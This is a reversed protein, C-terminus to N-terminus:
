DGVEVFLKMTPHIGCFVTYRGPKAFAIRVTEGPEQAGSDFTMKPDFVRVNHTRTDNNRVFVVAGKAVRISGPLFQKERQAVVRTAVAPAVRRTPAPKVRPATDAPGPATLTELFALLDGREEASLAARKLDKSLTSRAVIGSDYHALVDALTALSGDHMYPARHGVDRLGPTKFAHDAARLDLVAGRGRDAGPLGIDHFAHDTFAWGSHCAACNAKGAFLRFGRQATPSIAGEDGAIWRDFSTIPSVLTRVYTALAQALTRATVAKSGPFAAAFAAKYDADRELWAVLDDLRRDMEDPSDIPMSSQHELSDARGDWFLKEAWALNWIPPTRRALVQGREGRGTRRGDSWGQAPDHCGACALTGGGSLRPDFFLKQGLRAKGESWPNDAPFPVADPRRFRAKLAALAPDAPEAQVTDRLSWGFGAGLCAAAVAVALSLRWRSRRM